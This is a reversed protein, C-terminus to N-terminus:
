KGGAHWAGPALADLPLLGTLPPSPLCLFSCIGPQTWPSGPRPPKTVQDPPPPPPLPFGAEDPWNHGRIEGSLLLGGLHGHPHPFVSAGTGGARRRDQGPGLGGPKGPGCVLLLFSVALPLLHGRPHGPHGPGEWGM